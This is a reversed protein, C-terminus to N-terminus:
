FGLKLFSTKLRKTCINPFIKAGLLGLFLYDDLHSSHFNGKIKLLHCVHYILSFVAGQHDFLKM